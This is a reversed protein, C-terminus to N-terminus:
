EAHWLPCASILMEHRRNKSDFTIQTQYTGKKNQISIANMCLM